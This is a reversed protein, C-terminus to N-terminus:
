IPKRYGNDSQPLESAKGNRNRVSNLEIYRDPKQDFNSAPSFNDRYHLDRYLEM